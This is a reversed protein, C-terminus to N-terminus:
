AVKQQSIKKGRIPIDIKMSFESINEEETPTFKYDFVKEISPDISKIRKAIDIFWLWWWGTETFWQKGLARRYLEKIEEANMSNALEIRATIEGIKNNWKIINKLYNSIEIHLTNGKQEIVFHSKKAYEKSQNKIVNQLLETLINKIRKDIVPIDLNNMITVDQPTINKMEIRFPRKSVLFDSSQLTSLIDLTLNDHEHEPTVTGPAKKLGKEPIIM